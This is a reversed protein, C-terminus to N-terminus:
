TLSTIFFNLAMLFKLADILFHSQLTKSEDKIAIETHKFMTMLILLPEPFKVVSCM